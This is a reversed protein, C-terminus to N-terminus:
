IARKDRRLEFILPNIGLKDRITGYVMKFEVDTLKARADAEILVSPYSYDSTIRSYTYIVSTVKEVDRGFFDVRLPKDYKGVKLYTTNIQNAYEGIESLTPLDMNESYRRPVVYEGENLVHYLVNSDNMFENDVFRRGHSDEVAGILQVNNELCKKYLERIKQSVELFLNHYKSDRNPVSSPHVVISGDLILINPKFKEVAGIATNIEMEVRKLNSFISFESHEVPEFIIEPEVRRQPFFEANILKTGDYEFCTAVARRIILASSSVQRSVFGGDVGCIKIKGISLNTKKIENEQKFKDSFEIIRASDRKLKSIIPEVNM